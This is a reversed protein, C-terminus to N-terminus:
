RRRYQRANKMKYNTKYYTINELVLITLSILIGYCLILFILYVQHLDITKFMGQDTNEKRRLWHDQLSKM